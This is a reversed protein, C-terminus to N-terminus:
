ERQRVYLGMGPASNLENSNTNPPSVCGQVGTDPKDPVAALRRRINVATHTHRYPISYKETTKCSTHNNETTISETM